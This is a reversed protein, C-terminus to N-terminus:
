WAMAIGLHGVSEYLLTMLPAVLGAMLPPLAAKLAPLSSSAVALGFQAFLAFAMLAFSIAARSPSYKSLICGYFTVLTLAAGLFIGGINQTAAIAAFNFVPGMVGLLWGANGPAALMNAQFWGTTVWSPIVAVAVYAAFEISAYEPPHGEDQLRFWEAYAVAVWGVYWLMAFLSQLSVLRGLIDVNYGRSNDTGAAPNNPPPLDPSAAAERSPPSERDAAGQVNIVTTSSPPRKSTAKKPSPTAVGLEAVSPAEKVNVVTATKTDTKTPVV